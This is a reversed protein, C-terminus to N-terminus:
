CTLWDIFLIVLSWLIHQSPFFRVAHALRAEAIRMQRGREQALNAAPPHAWLGMWGPSCRSPPLPRRRMVLAKLDPSPSCRSPLLPRRGKLEPGSTPFPRDSCCPLARAPGSTPSHPSSFSHPPGQQGPSGQVNGPSGLGALLPRPVPWRVRSPEAKAACSARSLDPSRGKRTPVKATSSCQCGDGGRPVGM